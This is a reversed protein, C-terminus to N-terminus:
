DERKINKDIGLIKFETRRNREEAEQTNIKLKTEGYGVAKLRKDAIGQKILYAVTSDARRQSLALNRADDGVADTHSGLEIILQPNDKLFVVFKDLEQAADLRINAMGFDFNIEIEYTLDTVVIKDLVVKVYLTTDTEPKTLLEPSLGKGATTYEVEKKLFDNGASAILLYDEPFEVLFPKIKGQADTTFDHLKKVKKLENGLLFQVKADALATETKSSDTPNIGVVEIALFYRVTKKEPTKDEVIYIDDDGKGGERNSSFFGKETKKDWVLGFDDAKSNVPVGMNKITIKSQVRVAEFIDLGGLSPHGDSAFYLNGAESVFPFLENGATNIEKGLNKVNTFKGGKIDATWIDNGGFGGSRNSAFYLKKGDPSIAPCSTWANEKSGRLPEYGEEFMKQNINIPFPMMEPESWGNQTRRSIYLDVENGGGKKSDANSSRAFIMFSGDHAFAACAENTNSKNVKDTFVELNGKGVWADNLSTAYVGAFGGDTGEYVGQKRTSSVLLKDGQMIPAFEGAPSNLGEVNTVEFYTKTKIIDQIKQTNETEAKALKVFATNTGSKSYREYQAKAEEYKGNIKLAQAYYFRTKDDSSGADIAAKYYAEAENLKNSLRYAEGLYSNVTAKNGSKELATKFHPISKAYKAQDFHKIAKKLPTACGVFLAIMAIFFSIRKM